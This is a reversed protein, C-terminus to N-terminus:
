PIGSVEADAERFNLRERGWDEFCDNGNLKQPSTDNESSAARFLWLSGHYQLVLGRIWLESHETKGRSAKGQNKLWHCKSEVLLGCRGTGMM